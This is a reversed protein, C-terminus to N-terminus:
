KDTHQKLQGYKALWYADALDALGTTKKFNAQTFQERIDPPLKNIMDQKEARGNGTAFKKLTPPPVITIPPEYVLHYRLYTIIVFQLGALDRTVNGKNGFSLGELIVAQPKHHVVKSGIQFGMSAAQGFVDEEENKTFICFDVCKDDNLVVVGCKKFSQDIGLTIM